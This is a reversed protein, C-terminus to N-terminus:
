TTPFTIQIKLGKEMNTDFTIAGKIEEIRNGTNKLGNNFQTAKQMGRGNDTYYINIQEDKCDFRIGVRSAGSHKKMNVMLEQLIHEVEFRATLSAHEWLNQTNGAILIKTSETSFSSLLASIKKDFNQSETQPKEYSIDRSKEYLDEIQDLVQDKNIEQRNELEAMVRYLGNAVVDHVKKSTKLQSERISDKAEMALKQIRRQYLLTGAIVILLISITLIIVQYKKDDNDKQLVLNDAKSKETEYRILAFQNKATNRVNELSDALQQYRNFYMRTESPPALKILRQLAQLQDDASNLETAVQYMKRAYGLATDPEKTLYYDALHGYSSNKGWLDNEQERINLASLFEPAANYNRNQLWRATTINTLTRAYEKKNKSTEKLIKTYINLAQKYQKSEQYVKAKNNLYVRTDMSDASFRIALDYFRLANKYDKLRFTAIGLNNYNSTIFVHQAKDNINFYTLASLSLEQGGFYDNKETSIIAMNLFCKGTGLSDNQHLFVERAKNFYLFASDARGAERYDFAKDYYTNVVKEKEKPRNESCSLLLLLPLLLIRFHKL